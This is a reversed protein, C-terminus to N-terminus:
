VSGFSDTNEPYKLAHINKNSHSSQLVFKSATQERPLRAPLQEQSPRKKTVEEAYAAKKSEYGIDGDFSDEAPGFM